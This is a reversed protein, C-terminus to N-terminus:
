FSRHKHLIQFNTSRYEATHFLDGVKLGDDAKRVTELTVKDDGVDTVRVGLDQTLREVGAGIELYTSGLKDGHLM